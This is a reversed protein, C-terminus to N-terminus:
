YLKMRAEILASSGDVRVRLPGWLAVTGGGAVLLAAVGLQVASLADFRVVGTCEDAEIRGCEGDDLSTRIPGIALTVGLAVAAGGIVYNWPSRASRSSRARAASRSAPQLEVALTKLADINRPVTVTADFTAFGSHSVRVHHLGGAVRFRGPMTGVARGDVTVAAGSVPGTLELWPGPGRRMRNVASRAASMVAARLPASAADVRAGDSYRHGGPDLVSVSVGGIGREASGEAGWVTLQVTYEAALAARQAQTCADDGCAPVGAPSLPEIGALRLADGLAGVAETRQAEDVAPEIRPALVLARQAAASSHQLAAVTLVSVILAARDRRSVSM